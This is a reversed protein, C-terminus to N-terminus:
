SSTVAKAGDLQVFWVDGYNGGGPGIWLGNRTADYALSGLGGAIHYSALVAGTHPDARLLDTPSAYCTYWLASGDFTVGTGIGSACDQGFTVQGVIDGTAAHAPEAVLAVPVAAAVAAALVAVCRAA